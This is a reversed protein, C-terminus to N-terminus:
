AIRVKAWFATVSAELESFAVPTLSPNTTLFGGGFCPAIASWLFGIQM